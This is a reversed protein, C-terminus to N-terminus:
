CFRDDSLATIVLGRFWRHDAGSNWRRSWVLSMEMRAAEVGGEIIKIPLRTAMMEALRRPMIALAGSFLALLPLLAFQQVLTFAPGAEVGFPRPDISTGEMQVEPRYSIRLAGAIDDPTLRARDALPHDLGVVTVFEEVFLPLVTGGAALRRSIVSTPAIAMDIDSNDSLLRDADHDVFRMRVHPASKALTGALRPVLLAACYDPGAIVFERHSTAPDFDVPQWLAELERCVDEIPGLLAQGRGTLAMDRGSRVLLPDGFIGRLQELAKSVAPQSLGLMIAAKSVSREQLLARLKPLLNQNIARLNM